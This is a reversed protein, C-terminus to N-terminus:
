MFLYKQGRITMTRKSERTRIMRPKEVVAIFFGIGLTEKLSMDEFRLGGFKIAIPFMVESPILPHFSIYSSDPFDM